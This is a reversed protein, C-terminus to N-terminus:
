NRCRAFWENGSRAHLASHGVCGMPRGSSGGRGRCGEVGEGEPAGATALVKSIVEGTEAIEFGDPCRDHVFRLVLTSAGVLEHRVSAMCGVAGPTIQWETRELPEEGLWRLCVPCYRDNVPWERRCAPCYRYQYRVATVQLDGVRLRQAGCENRASSKADSGASGLGCRQQGGGM